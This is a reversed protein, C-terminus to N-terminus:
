TVHSIAPVTGARWQAMSAGNSFPDIACVEHRGTQRIEKISSSSSSSSSRGMDADSPAAIGKRTHHPADVAIDFEEALTALLDCVFDMAGSTNEELRHTKVFPDLSVIDPKLKRIKARLQKELGGREAAGNKLEALKIGKPVAYFFWGKLESRDVGHHMCCAAIRRRLEDRGDEFSLLLVRCRM